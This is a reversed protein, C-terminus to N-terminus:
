RLSSWWGFIAIVAILHVFLSGQTEPNGNVTRVLSVVALVCSLIVLGAAFVMGGNPGGNAPGSNELAFWAAAIALVYYALTLLTNNKM